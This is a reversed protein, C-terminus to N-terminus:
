RRWERSEQAFEWGGCPVSFLMLQGGGGGGGGPICIPPTTAAYLLPATESVREFTM